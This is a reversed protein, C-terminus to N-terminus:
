SRLVSHHVAVALLGGALDIFAHMVMLAWLSGSLVYLGGLILALGTVRLVGKPGQYVHGLGFVVAALVVALTLGGATEGTLQTMYWILYGRFLIEECIGATICVVSFHRMERRSQPMFPACRRLEEFIRERGAGTRMIVLYQITLAAAIAAAVLAGVWFRWGLATGLGLESVARPAQLWILGAAAVLAWQVGVNLWYMRIRVAPPGDAAKRRIRPGSFVAAYVPVGIVLLAGFLHDLITM